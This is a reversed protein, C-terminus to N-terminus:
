MTSRATSHQTFKFQTQPMYQGPTRHSRAWGTCHTDPCERPYLPRPTSSVVWRWKAGLNFFSYLWVEVGGRPRRLRIFYELRRRGSASTNRFNYHRGSVFYLLYPLSHLFGMSQVFLTLLSVMFAATSRSDYLERLIARPIPTDGGLTRSISRSSWNAVCCQERFECKNGSSLGRCRGHM